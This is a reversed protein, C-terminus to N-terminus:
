FLDIPNITINNHLAYENARGDLKMKSSDINQSSRKDKKYKRKNNMIIYMILDQSYTRERIMLAFLHRNVDGNNEKKWSVKDKCIIICPLITLMYIIFAIIIMLVYM